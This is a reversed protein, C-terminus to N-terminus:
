AALQDETDTRTLIRGDLTAFTWVGHAHTVTIDNAHIWDHCGNCFLGSNDM